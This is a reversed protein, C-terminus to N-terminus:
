SREDSPRPGSRSRGISDGKSLWGPDVRLFHFTAAEISLYRDDPERPLEAGFYGRLVDGLVNVVTISDGIAQARVGPLYYAGFAGFRAWAARAEVQGASRAEEYQPIAFGHDGQLLIVPPLDSDHLIKTVAALVLGNLCQLQSVYAARRDRMGLDKPPRRCNRDFVYPGHPSLVHAFAFTPATDSPLRAVGDLTRRVFEAEFPPGPPLYDFLTAALTARRLETGRLERDLDFGHWVHVVSDAIPSTRTSNWWGSPFFVYRYGHAQFFRAVRSRALLHNALTPDNTRPPLDRELSQMHAANLLSPLSVITQTYNSGTAVPVMFGLARLSDEFPRNDFGLVDRLVAGNAYEDLVILYVDREPLPAAAPGRIPRELEHAVESGAVASRARLRDMAVGAGFRLVLLVGALTLFTAVMRLAKPRRGLWWVPAVSAAVAALAVGLHADLRAQVGLAGLQVRAFLWVVTIITILPALGGEAGGRLGLAVVAYIAATLGLAAALVVFLDDLAFQGPNFDAMALIRVMVWLFPYLAILRRSM